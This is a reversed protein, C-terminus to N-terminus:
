QIINRKKTITAFLKVLTPELIVGLPDTNIEVLSKILNNLHGRSQLYEFGHNTEVLFSILEVCNLKALLDKNEHGLYSELKHTLNFKPEVINTLNEARICCLKVLLELVRFSQITNGSFIRECEDVFETTILPSIDSILSLKAMFESLLKTFSCTNQPIQTILLVLLSKLGTDNMICSNQDDKFISIEAKCLNTENLYSLLLSNSPTLEILRKVLMHKVREDKQQTMLHVIKDYFMPGTFSDISKFIALIREIIDYPELFDVIGNSEELSKTWVDLLFLNSFHNSDSVFFSYIDEDTMHNLIHSKAKTLGDLKSKESKCTQLDDFIKILVNHEPPLM